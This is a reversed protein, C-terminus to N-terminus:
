QLLILQQQKMKITMKFNETYNSCQLYQNFNILVLCLVLFRSFNYYAQNETIETVFEDKPDNQFQQHIQFFIHLGQKSFGSFMLSQSIFFHKQNVQSTQKSLSWYILQLLFAKLVCFMNWTLSIFTMNFNYCSKNRENQKHQKWWCFIVSAIIKFYRYNLYFKLLFSEKIM